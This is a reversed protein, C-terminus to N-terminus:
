CHFGRKGIKGAVWVENFTIVNNDGDMSVEKRQLCEADPYISPLKYEHPSVHLHQMTEIPFHCYRVFIHHPRQLPM